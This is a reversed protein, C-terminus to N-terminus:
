DLDYFFVPIINDICNLIPSHCSRPECELACVSKIMM